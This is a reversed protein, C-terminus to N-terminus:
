IFSNGTIDFSSTPNASQVSAGFTDKYSSSALPTLIFGLTASANYPIVFQWSATKFDQGGNENAGM